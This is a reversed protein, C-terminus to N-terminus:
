QVTFKITSFHRKTCLSIPIKGFKFRHLSINCFDEPKASKKDQSLINGVSKGFFKAKSEKETWMQTFSDPRNEVLKIEDDSFYREALKKAREPSIEAAEVDVGLEEGISVACVAYGKSHSVNFKIESAKFYPKGMESRAFVLSATDIDASPLEYIGDYLMALAFLSECASDSGSRSQIEEIYERNDPNPFMLRVAEALTNKDLGQPIKSATLLIM